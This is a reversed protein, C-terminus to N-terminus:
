PRTPFQPSETRTRKLEWFGDISMMAILADWMALSEEHPPVKTIVPGFYGQKVGIRDEFAIIPTGVDDGTLALGADMRSRIEVDWKEDDFAAAHKPDFGASELVDAATFDRDQDHHIRRGCEWYFDFVADDGETVRISEMVRLLRHTFFLREHYPSDPDPQNKFFLSIPQWKIHLDRAPKIEDVVWRATV